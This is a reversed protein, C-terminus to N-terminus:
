KSGACLADAHWNVHDDMFTSIFWYSHDYGEQLRYTMPYDVKKCAAEFNGPCLQNKLFGDASGQDILIKPRPGEYAQVLETADWASWTSKDEGLYGTFAKVGWPCNIPNCIPAFASCSAFMGPNKLHLVLAGHGGMSHGTIGAKDSAPFNSKILEPLEKICYDYMRYNKKFGDTTANLYFGAATGFDWDKEEDPAGAGRPSTDPAVVIMGREAALKFAGAKTTFNVPSCTLGSLFYLVPFKGGTAKAKPPVFIGFTATLGGLADSKHEWNSFTGGFVKWEKTKKLGSADTMKEDSAM